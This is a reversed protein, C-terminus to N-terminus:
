PVNKRVISTLSNTTIWKNENRKIDKGSVKHRQKFTFNPRTHAWFLLTLKM